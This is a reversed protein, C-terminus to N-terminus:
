PRTGDNSISEALAYGIAQELTMSRGQSWYERVAEHGLCKHVAEVASDYDTRYFPLVSAGIAERLAEGAGFLRAARIHDGQLAIIEAMTELSRSIFWKEKLDRLILLTERVLKAAEAYDGQRFAVIGLNRLPLALAWNDGIARATTASEELALRAAGYNNLTMEAIGLTALTTTLGFTDIANRRLIEVSSTALAVAAGADGQAIMETALFHQAEALSREDDLTRWVAVSEELRTRAFSRDGQAWALVGSGLLAKARQPTPAPEAVSALAKELWARGERWYGHHFWFWWLSGCLLLAAEPEYRMAWRLATRVNDHEAHLQALYDVRRATNIRPEIDAVFDRLYRLHRQHIAAVDGAEVLKEWGYQRVTELLRYRRGHRTQGGAVVLSKDVLRALLDVVGNEGSQGAGAIASACVAQAAELTWGGAFVALSNFLTREESSLLGYSWDITARLTQHRPVEARHRRVLVRFSDNLYRAIQEVTLARVRPAALEIALPIGDLRHCIEAVFPANEPSLQFDAQVATAREVFLRVADYSLLDPMSPLQAPDPYSLAPVTWVCEESVGLPERSTALIRVGPCSRLLGHALEASAAIVHECNDLLLLVEKTRLHHQLSATLDRGPQERIDLVRAVSQPVLLPDSLSALDVWWVGETSASMLDVAARLALRTKGVGGPGTLTVLRSTGLLRRVLAVEHDRGILPTLEIPLQDTAVEGIFRYGSRHATEVFQPTKAIDGLAERIERISTKLVTDSVATAPWVADLLENKTVLTGAHEVLYRLVAFTKPRLPIVQEGRRLRQNAPDLRFPSFLIPRDPTM